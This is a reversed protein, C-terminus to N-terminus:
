GESRVIRGIGKDIGRSLDVLKAVLRDENGAGASTKAAFSRQGEGIGARADDTDGAALVVDVSDDSLDLGFVRVGGGRQGDGGVDSLGGGGACDEGSEAGFESGVIGVDVDEDRVRARRAEVEELELRVCLQLVPPAHDLDVQAAGDGEDAGHERAHTRAAGADDDGKGAGGAALVRGERGCVGDGLGAEDLEVLVEADLELAGADAAIGHM